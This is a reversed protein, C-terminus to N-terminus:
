PKQPHHGHHLWLQHHSDALSVLLSGLQLHPCFESLCRDRVNGECCISFLGIGCTYSIPDFKYSLAEFDRIQVKDMSLMFDYRIHFKSNNLLDSSYIEFELM